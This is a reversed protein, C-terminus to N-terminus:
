GIAPPTRRHWDTARQFDAGLGILRNESFHPGVLQMGVPLGEHFGSPLALAPVGALSAPVTFVDQQYMEVPDSIQGIPFATSPATPTLLADVSGFAAVFDDRILRRVRQAKLYYADFYGVSLAYTGTLIRRKVERGFGESRSREYLDTLDAPAECRHGYRVGDFRSLNTSAEASAVVYYTAVAAATHPLSVEVLSHGLSEFERRAEDFVRALAPDTLM